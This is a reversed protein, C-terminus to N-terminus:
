PRKPSLGKPLDIKLLEAADTRFRTLEERALPSRDLWERQEKMATEARDFARRARAGDDVRHYAMALFYGIYLNNFPTGDDGKTLADIAELYMGARFRTTGVLRWCGLSDPRLARAKDAAALAATPDQLKPDVCTALLWALEFWADLHKPRLDVVERLAAIAEAPRGLHRYTWALRFLSNPKKSPDQIAAQYAVAAQEFKGAGELARGLNYQVDANDPRADRVRTYPAVALEPHGARLLVDALRQHVALCDERGVLAARIFGAAEDLRPPNPQQLRKALDLKLGLDTPHQEQATLRVELAKMQSKVGWMM